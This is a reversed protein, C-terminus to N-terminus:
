DSDSSESSSSGRRKDKKSKEQLCTIDSPIAGASTLMSLGKTLTQPTQLSGGDQMRLQGVDV